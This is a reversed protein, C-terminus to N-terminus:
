WDTITWPAPSTAFMVDLMELIANPARVRGAAALTRFGTGGLYATALESVTLRVDPVRETPECRASSGDGELLFRAANAPLVPDAVDLVVTGPAAYRRGALAAQVDVLRLHLFHRLATVEVIRMASLTWRLPDDVPVNWAQVTEAQAFHLCYDWLARRANGAAVLDEVHMGHVPQERLPGYDLRYTLYGVCESTTEALVVFRESAGIRVLPEDSFWDDWFRQSRSVQGPRSRRHQDYVVPLIRRAEKGDALRLRITASSPAATPAGPRFRVAMATTAPSFGYFAPVGSQSTTLVALPERRSHLDALQKRMFASALGQNRYTPLVGTLTVKAAPLMLPGPVTLEILESSTAGIIRGDQAAVLTRDVDYMATSNSAMGPTPHRGAAKELVSVVEAM